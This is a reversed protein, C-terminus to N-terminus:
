EELRRNNYFISFPFIIVELKDYIVVSYGGGSPPVGLLFDAVLNGAKKRGNKALSGGRRGTKSFLEQKMQCKSFNVTNLWSFPFHLQCIQNQPPTTYSLFILFFKQFRQCNETEKPLPSQFPFKFFNQFDGDMKSQEPKYTTLPIEEFIGGASNAYKGKAASIYCLAALVGRQFQLLSHLVGSATM